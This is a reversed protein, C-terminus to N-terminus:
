HEVAQLNVASPVTRQQVCKRDIYRRLKRDAQQKEAQEDLLLLLVTVPVDASAIAITLWHIHM